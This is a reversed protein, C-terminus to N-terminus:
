ASFSREVAGVPGPAVLRGIVEPFRDALQDPSWPGPSLIAALAQLGAGALGADRASLGAALLTGCIGALTDGSGAQATWAPGPLAASIQQDPTAVWQIAGKLLVTAGFMRAGALCSGRRDAEVEARDIGLMRALEGAHPTLLCGEPIRRPLVALADADVVVPVGDALRRDLRAANGADDGWGSGVVWAQVRGAACVVSPTRDMVHQRVADPGVCRVMGAGSRLAGLVGLVGAGPYQASGTDCGVVGRSYKDSAPGPVPWLDALDTVSTIQDADPVTVGIDALIVRGCCAAAPRALHCWKRSAFTVTTRAHVCRVVEGSDASLGSPLDVALVPTDAGALAEDLRALCDPISPRGGIGLVADIALDYHRDLADVPSVEGCGAEQAAAAGAEHLSGLVPCVDVVWGDRCLEAAAFLGDAGNNGTGAMVLVRQQAIWEASEELPEDGLLMTVATTAVAHAAVAMLDAGPHADFFAREATRMQEATCVTTM